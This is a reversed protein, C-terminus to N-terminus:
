IAGGVLIATTMPFLGNPYAQPPYGLGALAAGAVNAQLTEGLGGRIYFNAATSFPNRYSARWQVRAQLGGRTLSM